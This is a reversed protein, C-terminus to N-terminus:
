IDFATLRYTDTMSWADNSFSPVGGNIKVASVRDFGTATMTTSLATQIAQSITWIDTTGSNAYMIQFDVTMDYRTVGSFMPTAVTSVASYIVLPLSANAPGEDLYIRSSLPTTLASTAYLRTKLADMIPKM